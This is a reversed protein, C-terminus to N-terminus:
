EYKQGDRYVNFISRLIALELTWGRIPQTDHHEPREPQDPDPQGEGWRAAAVVLVRGAGVAANVIVSNIFPIIQTCYPKYISM